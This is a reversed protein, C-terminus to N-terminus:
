PTKAPGFVRGGITPNSLDKEPPVAYHGGCSSLLLICLIVVCRKKM